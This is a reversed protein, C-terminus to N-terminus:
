EFTNLTNMRWAPTYHFIHNSWSINEGSLFHSKTIDVWCNAPRHINTYTTCSNGGTYIQECLYYYYLKSYYRIQIYAHTIAYTISHYQSLATMSCRLYKTFCHTITQKTGSSCSCGGPLIYTFYKHLTLWASTQASPAISVLLLSCATEVM